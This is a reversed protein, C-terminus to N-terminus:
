HLDISVFIDLFCAFLCFFLLSWLSSGESVLQQLHHCPKYHNLGASNQKSLSFGAVKSCAWASARQISSKFSYSGWFCFVFTKLWYITKCLFKLLYPSVPPPVPSCFSIEAPKQEAIRLGSTKHDWLRMTECIHM